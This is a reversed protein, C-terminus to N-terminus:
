CLRMNTASPRDLAISSTMMAPTAKEAPNFETPYDFLTRNSPKDITVVRKWDSKNYHLGCASLRTSAAKVGRGRAASRGRALPGIGLVSRSDVDVVFRTSACIM